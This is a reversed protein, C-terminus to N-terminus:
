GCMRCTIIKKTELTTNKENAKENVNKNKNVEKSM